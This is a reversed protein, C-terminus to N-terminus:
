KSTESVLNKIDQIKWPLVYVETNVKEASVDAGGGIGYEFGLGINTIPENTKPDVSFAVCENLGVGKIHYVSQNFCYGEGALDKITKATSLHAGVSLAIQSSLSANRIQTGDSFYVGLNGDIDAALGITVSKGGVVGISRNFTVYIQITNVSVGVDIESGKRSREAIIQFLLGARISTLEKFNDYVIIPTGVSKIYKFIKNDNYLNLTATDVKYQGAIKQVTDNPRVSHIIRSPKSITYNEISQEKKTIRLIKGAISHKENKIGNIKMIEVLTLNYKKGISLLSEGSKVLHYMREYTGQEGIEKTKTTIKMMNTPILPLSEKKQRDRDSLHYTYYKIKTNKNLKAGIKISCKGATLRALNCFVKIKCYGNSGSEVTFNPTQPTEIYCATGHVYVKVKEKVPTLSSKYVLRFELNFKIIM